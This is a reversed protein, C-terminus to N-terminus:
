GYFKVILQVAVCQELFAHRFTSEWEGIKLGYWEHRMKACLYLNSPLFHVKIGQSM